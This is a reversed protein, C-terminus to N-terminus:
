NSLILVIIIFISWFISKFTIFVFWFVSLSAVKINVDCSKGLGLWTQSSSFSSSISYSFVLLLFWPSFISCPRSVLWPEFVLKNCLMGWDLDAVGYIWLGLIVGLTPEAKDWQLCFIKLFRIFTKFSIPIAFFLCFSNYSTAVCLIWHYSIQFFASTM